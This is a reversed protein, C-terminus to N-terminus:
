PRVRLTAAPADGTLPTITWTIRKGEPVTTAGDEQNQSVIEADTTLTFTGNLAKAAADGSGGGMGAPGQSKDFGNSFGPAKVRVRDAGRMEVAVFPLVIQADINFPFLFAHDLRGSIAYDIAFKHDGLYQVSRFGKEKTLASAMAQMQADDGSAKDFQPEAPPAPTKSQNQAVKQLVAEEGEPPAVGELPDEEADSNLGGQAKDMDSALIEGKYAFAFSRDARIDLTSTFSGPTVLCGPLMLLAALAGAARSLLVM